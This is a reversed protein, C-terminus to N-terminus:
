PRVHPVGTGSKRVVRDAIAKAVRELGIGRSAKLLLLDGDRLAAPIDIACADAAPYRVVNAPSMGAATAADAILGAHAGVCYLTDLNCEAAMTGIETHYRAASTGLELMDGLVAVRRGATPLDRVTELAARMSHPNANYADNLVSYTGVTDLQLRWDANTARSLGLRLDLDAVGMRRGVAIAALANVATHRGLLPIFWGEGDLKFRTGTADCVIDTARLDCAGTTGFTVVEGPFADVARRLHPDDGNLVLLGAADLGYIIQANEHRVGDLDGLFELHEAGINTIVAIDPQAIQTLNLIEGPHNTGMELVLYDDDPHAPFIALPVGIDNNFSKPSITGRRDPSLAAHILNKTGTKGNSGAVGIVTGNFQHRVHNALQGLAVRTDPVVILPINPPNPPVRDAQVVAAVAGGAAAKALHAHGDFTEGIIAIFLASPQITRTDTSISHVVFDATAVAGVADAVNKGTISRM